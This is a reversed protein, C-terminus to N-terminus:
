RATYKMFYLELSRLRVNFYAVLLCLITGSVIRHRVYTIRNMRFACRQDISGCLCPRVQCISLSVTTRPWNPACPLRAFVTLVANAVMDGHPNKLETSQTNTSSVMKLTNVTYPM